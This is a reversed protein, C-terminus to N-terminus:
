KSPIYGISISDGIILVKPLDREQEASMAIHPSLSLIILNLAAISYKKM